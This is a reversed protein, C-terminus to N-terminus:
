LRLRATVDRGLQQRIARLRHLHFFCTEAVRSVHAQMSLEADASHSGCALTVRCYDCINHLWKVHRGDVM